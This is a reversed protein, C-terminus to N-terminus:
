KLNVEDKQMTLLCNNLSNLKDMEAQTVTNYCKIATNM